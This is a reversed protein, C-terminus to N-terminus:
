MEKTVLPSFMKKVYDNIMKNTKNKPLNRTQTREDRDNEPGMEYLKLVM